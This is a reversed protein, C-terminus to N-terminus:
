PSLFKAMRLLASRGAEAAYSLNQLGAKLPQDRGPEILNRQEPNIEAHSNFTVMLGVVLLPFPNRLREFIPM